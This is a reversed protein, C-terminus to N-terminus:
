KTGGYKYDDPIDEDSDEYSELAKNIFELLRQIDSYGTVTVTDHKKMFKITLTGDEELVECRFYLQEVPVELIALPNV